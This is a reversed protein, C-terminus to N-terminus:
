LMGSRRLQPSHRQIKGGTNRGHPMDDRLTSMSFRNNLGGQSRRM